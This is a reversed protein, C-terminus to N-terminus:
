SPRTLSAGLRESSVVCGHCRADQKPGKAKKSTRPGFGRGFYINCVSRSLVSLKGEPRTQLESGPPGVYRFSWQIHHSTFDIAKRMNCLQLICVRAQLSHVVCHFVVHGPLLWSDLLLLLLLHLTAAAAALTPRRCCPYPQLTSLLHLTTTPLAPLSTWPPVLM